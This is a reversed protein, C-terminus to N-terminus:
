LKYARFKLFTDGSSTDLYVNGDDQVFVDRSSLPIKILRTEGAPITYTRDELPIANYVFNTELVVDHSGSDTNEVEIFIIEDQVVAVSLDNAAVATVQSPPAIGDNTIETLTIADRAM